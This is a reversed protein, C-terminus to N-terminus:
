VMMADILLLCDSSHFFRIFGYEGEFSTPLNEPPIQFRFQHVHEGLSITAPPIPLTLIIRNFSCLKM